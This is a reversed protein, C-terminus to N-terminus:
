IQWFCVVVVFLLTLALGMSCCVYMCVVGGGFSVVVVVVLFCTGLRRMGSRFEEQSIM